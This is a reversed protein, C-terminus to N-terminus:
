NTGTQATAAARANKSVTKGKCWSAVAWVPVFWDDDAFHWWSTGIVLM